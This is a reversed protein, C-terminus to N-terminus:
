TGLSEWCSVCLSIEKEGLRKMDSPSFELNCQGDYEYLMWISINESRVGLELLEREKGNLYSLFTEIFNM